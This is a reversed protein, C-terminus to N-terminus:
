NTNHYSSEFDNKKKINIASAATTYNNRQQSKNRPIERNNHNFNSLSKNAYYDIQNHSQKSPNKLRYSSSAKDM